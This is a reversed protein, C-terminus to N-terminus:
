ALEDIGTSTKLRAGPARNFGRSCGWSCNDFNNENRINIEM